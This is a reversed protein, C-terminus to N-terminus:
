VGRTHGDHFSPEATDAPTTGMRRMLQPTAHSPCLSRRRHEGRRSRSYGGGRPARSTM